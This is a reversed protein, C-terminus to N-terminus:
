LRYWTALYEEMSDGFSDWDEGRSYIRPFRPGYPTPRVEQRELDNTAAAAPLFMAWHSNLSIDSIRWRGGEREWRLDLVSNGNTFPLRSWKWTWRLITHAKNQRTVYKLYTCANTDLYYSTAFTAIPWEPLKREVRERLEPTLWRACGEWDRAAFDRAFLVAAEQPGPECAALLLTLVLSALGALLRHATHNKM